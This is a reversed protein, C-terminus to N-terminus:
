PSLSGVQIATMSATGASTEGTNGVAECSLTAEASSTVTAAVTMSVTQDNQPAFGPGLLGAEVEDSASGLTLVCVGLSSSDSPSTNHLWTSADVVYSGARLSLGAVGTLTDNLAVDSAQTRYGNPGEINWKLATYGSPCKGASTVTLAHTKNKAAKTTYCGHVLGSNGPISAAAVGVTTVAVILVGAAVGAVGLRTTPLVQRVLRRINAKM